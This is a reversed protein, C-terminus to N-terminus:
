PSSGPAGPRCSSCCSRSSGNPSGYCSCAPCGSCCCRNEHAGCSRLRSPHGGSPVSRKGTQSDGCCVFCLRFGNQAPLARSHDPMSRESRSKKRNWAKCFPEKRSASQIASRVSMVHVASRGSANWSQSRQIARCVYRPEMWHITASPSLRAFRVWKPSSIPTSFPGVTTTEPLNSDKPNSAEPAFSASPPRHVRYISPTLAGANKWIFVAFNAKKGHIM